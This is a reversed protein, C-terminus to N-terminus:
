EAVFMYGTGSITKIQKPNGSITSIKARIHSIHMDISRDFSSADNGRIHNMLEDRSFVINLQTMLVDLLRFEMTTLEIERGNGTNKLCYHLRDLTMGGGHLFKKKESPKTSLRGSEPRRLVAKMRALLERPNFPKPLYDDAGMELGVIRDTDEGKASLMVVPITCFTRIEKLIDLGNKDPLVVDLIIIEPRNVHIAGTVDSGKLLSSVAYGYEQLYGKLLTQLKADDDIILVRTDLSIEPEPIHIDFCYRFKNTVDLSINPRGVQQEM